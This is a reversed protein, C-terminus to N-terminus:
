HNGRETIQQLTRSKPFLGLSQAEECYWFSSWLSKHRYYNQAICSGLCIKKMLCNECIGELRHPMGQRIELLLSHTDWVEKLPVTEAHGFVLEPVVEGIGCFAYSGNALVGLIGLIGCRGCGDRNEGFMKSLPRFALPHHYYLKLDTSASLDNEVWQGLRILEEIPVAEGDWHMKEGKAIPQMMNFKVSGAGLSKALQIMADIQDKNRRMLTMIVQPKLGAEALNRIGKLTADFCGAVGRVWEHTEANAGDLSVGVSPTKCQAIERSLEQTCLTGNTEIILYLNEERTLDLIEHIRPHLLPEGGTLKVSSLGMPKAQEIIARFSRFELASYSRNETQYKPQIWCHRCRLNCGETLYFYIMDLPYNKNGNKEKEGRDM